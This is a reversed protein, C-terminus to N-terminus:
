PQPRPRLAVGEAVTAAGGLSHRGDGEADHVALRLCARALTASTVDARRGSFTASLIPGDADTELIRVKVSEGPPLLRFHYRMAMDLFPSVYFRKDREQRLGSENLTGAEVPAVYTHLEGFTNRVEYVIAKLANGRDYAYYVSLPNFVYGLIRPYCLLLVRGGGLDIGCPALLADIHARLPSGNRPGHDAEFFSVLNFRNVSVAPKLPRGRRLRRPRRAALLATSSAIASRAAAPM